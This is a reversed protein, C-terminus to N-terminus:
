LVFSSSEKLLDKISATEKLPVEGKAFTLLQKTLTQARKSAREAETLLESSDDGQALDTKALSISGIIITLINNFDHAIGGALLGVSELKQAKLVGEEMRKRETIDQATGFMRIVSGDKSKDASGRAHM